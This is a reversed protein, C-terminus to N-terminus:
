NYETQLFDHCRHLVLQVYNGDYHVIESPWFHKWLVYAVQLRVVHYLPRVVILIHANIGDHRSHMTVRTGNLFPGAITKRWVHRGLIHVWGYNDLLEVAGFMMSRGNAPSRRGGYRGCHSDRPFSCFQWAVPIM